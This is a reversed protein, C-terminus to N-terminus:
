LICLLIHASMSARCLARRLNVTLGELGVAGRVGPRCHIEKEGRFHPDHIFDEYLYAHFLEACVGLGRLRRLTLGDCRARAVLVGPRARRAASGGRRGGRAAPRVGGGGVLRFLRERRGRNNKGGFVDIRGLRGHIVGRLMVVAYGVAYLQGNVASLVGVPVHDRVAVRGKDLGAGVGVSLVVVFDRDRPVVVLYLDVIVGVLYRDRGMRVINRDGAMGMLDRDGAVLM